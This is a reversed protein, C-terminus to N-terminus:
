ELLHRAHEIDRRIQAVLQGEDAFAREDRVRAVVEVWLVEGYMDDELGMLHVEVSRRGEGFTPRCGVNMVGQLVQGTRRVRVAYVGDAPVLKESDEVELNATPYGLSRGRGGGEVVRGLVVYEYGLMRNAASLLGGEVADRIRTSSLPVGKWLVPSVVIVDFGLREGIRTLAALDGGRGRGVTFNYGVVLSHIGLPGLMDRFFTEADMRAVSRDFPLALTVEVGLRELLARKEEWVTLRRPPRDPRLVRQPYPEFTVVVATGGSSRSLELLRAVVAQHGRHMGDFTGMAVRPSTLNEPIEEPSRICRV